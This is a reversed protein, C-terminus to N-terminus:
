GHSRRDDCLDVPLVAVGECEVLEHWFRRLDDPSQIRFPFCLGHLSLLLELERNFRQWTLVSRMDELCDVRSAFLSDMDFLANLDFVHYADSDFWINKISLSAYLLNCRFARSFLEFLFRTLADKYRGLCAGGSIKKLRALPQRCLTSLHKSLPVLESVYGRVDGDRDTILSNLQPATCADYFNSSLGRLVRDAFLYEKSFLTWVQDLDRHLFIQRDLTKGSMFELSRFDIDEFWVTKLM